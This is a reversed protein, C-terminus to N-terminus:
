DIEKYLIAGVSGTVYLRNGDVHLDLIDFTRPLEEKVWTRGGDETRFMAGAMGAVYGVGNDLMEAAVLVQHPPLNAATWTNGGDSTYALMSSPGCVIGNPGNFSLARGPKDMGLLRREWSEGYDNSFNLQGFTLLYLTGDAGIEFESPGLGVSGLRTWTAGSDVTRVLYSSFPQEETRHIGCALAITDDIAIVDTFWLSDNSLGKFIWETGGDYTVIIVGYNGVAYGHKGTVYDIDQFGAEGKFEFSAWTKGRDYTVGFNGEGTVIYGTDHNVFDIGTIHEPFPSGVIVWDDSAAMASAAILLLCTTLLTKM